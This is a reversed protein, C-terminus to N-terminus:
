HPGHVVRGGVITAYIGIQSIEDPPTEWPNRELVVLDALRGPILQGKLREEGSAFAAYVSYM